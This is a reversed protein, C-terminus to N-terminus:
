NNTILNQRRQFSYKHKHLKMTDQQAGDGLHLDINHYLLYMCRQLSGYRFRWPNFSTVSSRTNKQTRELAGGM